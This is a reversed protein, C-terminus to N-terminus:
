GSEGARLWSVLCLDCTHSLSTYQSLPTLGIRGSVVLVCSELCLLTPSLPSQSLPRLGIRWSVVWVCSVLCLHPHSLHIAVPASVRNTRECGLCLACIYTLSTSAVLANGGNARECGVLRCACEAFIFCYIIIFPAWMLSRFSPPTSRPVLVLPGAPYPPCLSTHSFM